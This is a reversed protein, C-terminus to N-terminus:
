VIPKSINKLSIAGVIITLASLIYLIIGFLTIDNVDHTLSLFVLLEISGLLVLVTGNAKRHQSKMRYALVGVVIIAILFALILEATIYATTYDAYTTM